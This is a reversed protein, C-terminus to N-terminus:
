KNQNFIRGVEEATILNKDLLRQTYQALTIMWQQTGTSIINDMQQIERKKINNRIATTNVM